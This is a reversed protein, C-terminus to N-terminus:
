QNCSYTREAEFDDLMATQPSPRSLLRATFRKRDIELFFGFDCRKDVCVCMLVVM